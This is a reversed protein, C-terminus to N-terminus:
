RVWYDVGDFDVSTYDHKLENAAQEWDICNVPWSANKDIAGIDDALERAYDEFYSDRILTSGYKWDESYGEAEEQLAKLAELEEWEDSDLGNRGNECEGCKEDDATDNGDEPKLYGSGGCTECDTISSELYDIRAIIDRSDIIDQSNDIATTGNM